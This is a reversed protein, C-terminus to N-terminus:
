SVAYPQLAQWHILLDFSGSPKRHIHIRFGSNTVNTVSHSYNQPVDTGLTVQVMPAATFRGTPFSINFVNVNDPGTVTGSFSGTSIAFPLARTNSGDFVDVQGNRRLYIASDVNNGTMGLLAIATTEPNVGPRITTHYVQNDDTLWRLNTYPMGLKVTSSGVINARNLPEPWIQKWQGGNLLWLAKEANTDTWLTGHPLSATSNLRESQTGSRANARRILAEQMATALVGFAGMITYNEGGSPTPLGDPITEEM